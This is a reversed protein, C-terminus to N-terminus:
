SSSPWCPAGSPLVHRLARLARIRYPAYMGEELSLQQDQDVCANLKEVPYLLVIDMCKKKQEHHAIPSTRQSLIRNSHSKRKKGTELTPFSKLGSIAIGLRVAFKYPSTRLQNAPQSGFKDDRQRYRRWLPNRGDYEKEATFRKTKKRKKKTKRKENKM